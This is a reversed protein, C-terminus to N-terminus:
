LWCKRGNLRVVLEDLHWIDSPSASKRRLRRAYDDGHTRCWRRIAEYSVVIGREFMMEEVERLSVNFRYYLWVARGIVEIPFRHNKYTPAPIKMGIM